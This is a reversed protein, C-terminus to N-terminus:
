PRDSVFYLTLADASLNAGVEISPTNIAEGVNRAPGFSLQANALNGGLATILVVFLPQAIGIRAKSCPDAKQVTENMSYAAHGLQGMDSSVGAGDHAFHPVGPTGDYMTSDGKM